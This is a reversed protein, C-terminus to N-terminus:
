AAANLHDGMIASLQKPPQGAARKRIEASYATCVNGIDITKGTISKITKAIPSFSEAAYKAQSEALVNCAIIREADPKKAATALAKETKSEVRAAADDLLPLFAAYHDTPDTASHSESETAAPNAVLNTPLRLQDGEKADVAPLNLTARAENPTTIGQNAGQAAVTMQVATDGRLLASTDMRISYDQDQEAETLLKTTLEDELHELRPRFTFRVIDQGQAEVTSGNYKSESTDFLFQQPVGTIQSIKKTIAADQEALQADVPSITTNTLKAGGALVIIDRDSTSARYQEMTSIIEATQEKTVGQPLEISGRVMTGKVLFKTQYIELTLARGITPAFLMSPSYGILGDYSAQPRYHIVDAAPIPKQSPAHWYWVTQDCIGGGEPMLRFPTVTGPQLNWLGIPLATATDRQVYAYGNGYHEGDFVLQKVFSHTTQNPNARRGLLKDLPHSVDLALEDLYIGIPFSAMNSSLFEMARWYPPVQLASYSNVVAPNMFNLTSGSVIEIDM